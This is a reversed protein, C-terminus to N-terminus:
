PFIGRKRLFDFIQAHVGVWQDQSFGHKAGPVTVIEVDVKADRLAQTLRVSQVVPVTTDDAGQVIFTPPLGRRVYTLPSVRKALDLRGPRDPVWQAAWSKRHPGEVLDAVDTPGYCDVIAAVPAAPGFGATPPTLGVMLALHGGASAGTVVIRRTDVGYKGANQFFWAAADLADTVAAPAPAVPALRYEVNCVVFGQQLYPLCFSRMMTEKSSEIWGGGHFMLVGPRKGASLTTPQMIDLVTQPYKDYPLNAQITYAKPADTPPAPTQARVSALPLAALLLLTLCCRLLTMKASM